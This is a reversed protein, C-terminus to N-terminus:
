TESLFRRLKDRTADIYLADREAEDLSRDLEAYRQKLQEYVNSQELQEIDLKAELTALKTAVAVMEELEADHANRALMGDVVAELAENSVPKILYEDFEMEIIELDPEVATVMVVRCGLASKDMRDLVEDGPIDPLRRDLLVIDIREDLHEIAAGGTHVTQVDYDDALLEAYSEAIDVEDEVILVSTEGSM